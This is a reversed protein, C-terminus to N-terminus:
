ARNKPKGLAASFEMRSGVEKLRSILGGFNIKCDWLGVNDVKAMYSEM